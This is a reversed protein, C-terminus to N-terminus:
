LNEASYTSPKPASVVRFEDNSSVVTTSSNRNRRMVVAVGVLAMMGAALGAGGLIMATSDAPQEDLDEANLLTGDYDMVEVASDAIDNLMELGNLEDGKAEPLPPPITYEDVASMDVVYGQDKLAGFTMASLPSNAGDKGLFGTMLENQYMPEKWHGGKTGPGFEDEIYPAGEGDVAEHGLRANAGQHRYGRNNSRWNSSTGIGIVHGMEHVIVANFSNSDILTQVDASDFTMQGFRPFGARDSTCPGAQGLVKGPGDIPSINAVIILDDLTEGRNFRIDQGGCRFTRASRFTIDPINGVIATTWKEVALDFAAKIEASPENAYRIEINYDGAAATSAGALGLLAATAFKM